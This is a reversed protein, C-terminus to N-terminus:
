VKAETSLNNKNLNLITNLGIEVLHPEYAYNLEASFAPRITTSKGGTLVLTIEPMSAQLRKLYGEIEIAIGLHVGSRIATATDYGILPKDGTQSILPLRATGEHLAQLRMSTGPSINGGLYQGASTLVDLTLCTGLDAILLDKKPFLTQAGAVAAIRDSGLTLPTRYTNQFPLTTTGSVRLTPCHLTEIWQDINLTGAAVSSIACADISYREAFRVFRAYNTSREHLSDLLKNKDFVAAKAFTNGIDIVLNM